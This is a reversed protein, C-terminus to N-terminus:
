QQKSPTIDCVVGQERYKFGELEVLNGVKLKNGRVVYGDDTVESPATVTVEYDSALPSSPDPLAIAKKGDASLFSAMKPTRKVATIVMPPTVPVNRITLASPDNVKFLDLDRTKVGSFYVTIDIKQKGRIQQNVGAHGEKALVFGLVSFGILAICALDVVNIRGLFKLEGNVM